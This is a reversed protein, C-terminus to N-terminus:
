EGTFHRIAFPAIALAVGIALTLWLSGMFYSFGMMVAGTLLFTASQRKRGYVFYSFGVVSIFLSLFLQSPEM